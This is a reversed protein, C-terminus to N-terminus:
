LNPEGVDLFRSALSLTLGQWHSSGLFYMDVYVIQLLGQWPRGSVSSL